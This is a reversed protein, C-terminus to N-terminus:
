SLLATGLFDPGCLSFESSCFAPSMDWLSGWFPVETQRCRVSLVFKPHCCQQSVSCPLWLRTMSSLPHQPGMPLLSPIPPLDEPCYNRVGSGLAMSKRSLQNINLSFRGRGESTHRHGTKGSFCHLMESVLFCTHIYIVTYLTYMDCYPFCM